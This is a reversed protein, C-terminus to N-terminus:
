ADADARKLLMFEDVSALRLPVRVPKPVLSRAPDRVMEPGVLHLRRGRTEIDVGDAALVNRVWQSDAGYVLAIVYGDGRRFLSVPTRYTRGSRRGVHSVVALGPLYRAFPGLVRNTVVRNFKALRRPLPM